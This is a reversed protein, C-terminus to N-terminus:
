TLASEVSYADTLVATAEVVSATRGTFTLGLAMLGLLTDEQAPSLRYNVNFQDCIMQRLLDIKQVLGGSFVLSKWSQDPSLQRAFTYYSDAMSQFAARFLHGVTLEDEHLHTLEGQDGRASSYFALNVRMQPPPVAAAAQAIYDWPDALTVGQAVALESLLRVLANLARGAPIHTVTIAYRADFFPRTQFRGFEARPKLLSVQSGTSINLSLEDEQLLAGLIACQYDGVPTYCPIRRGGWDLWGTIAGHPQIAPLRIRELGLKGIVEQHWDLTEVDLLGVAMANTVDTQPCAECLNAVVFDSLAAPIWTQDPLQGQEALWFFLGVPLGPRLESGLQKIEENTLRSRMVEFFSGAGSPHPELVRQDQWTTLNSCPEGQETTWVVGHMQTCLVVGQCDVASAAMRILLLRVAQM